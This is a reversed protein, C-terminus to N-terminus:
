GCKTDSGLFSCQTPTLNLMNLARLSSLRLQESLSRLQSSLLCNNFSLLQIIYHFHRRTSSCGSSPSSFSGAPSTLVGLM